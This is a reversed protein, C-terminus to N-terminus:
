NRSKNLVSFSSLRDHLLYPRLQGFEITFISPFCVFWPYLITNLGIIFLYLTLYAAGFLVLNHTGTSM